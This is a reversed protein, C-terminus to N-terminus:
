YWRAEDTQWIHFQAKINDVNDLNPNKTGNCNISDSISRIEQDHM